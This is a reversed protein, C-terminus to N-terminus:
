KVEGDYQATKGIIHKLKAVAINYNYVASYYYFQTKAYAGIAEILDKTKSLGISYNMSEAVLWSKGAKLSEKNTEVSKAKEKLTEYAKRLELTLGLRAYKRQEAVKLLKYKALKYKSIQVMPDFSWKLGLVAGASTYNFPDSFYPNAPNYAGPTRAYRAFGLIYLDPLMKTISLQVNKEALKLGVDLMKSEPRAAFMLQLYTPYNDMAFDAKELETADLYIPADPPLGILVRVSALLIKQKRRTEELRMKLEGIVVDLKYLDLNTVSESKEALMKTLKERSDLAVRLGEELVKKMDEVFQMTYYSKTALYVVDAKTKIEKLKAMKEGLDALQNATMVKGFTYIPIVMNAEAKFFYTDWDWQDPNYALFSKLSDKPPTDYSPAPAIYSNIKIKPLLMGIAMNSRAEALEVDFQAAKLKHSNKIAMDIIQQLSYTHEPPYKPKEEEWATDEDLSADVDEEDEDPGLFEDILDEPVDEEEASSNSDASKETAKAKTQKAKNVSKGWAVYPSEVLVLALMFVFVYILRRIM